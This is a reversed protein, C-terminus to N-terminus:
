RWLSQSGLSPREFELLTVILEMLKPGLKGAPTISTDKLKKHVARDERGLVYEMM